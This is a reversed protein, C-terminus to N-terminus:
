RNVSMTPTVWNTWIYIVEAEPNLKQIAEYQLYESTLSENIINNADAIWQADIRKIDAKAIAAEKLNVQRDAEAKANEKAEIAEVISKPLWINEIIITEINSYLGVEKILKEKVAKTIEVRGTDSYVSSKDKGTIVDDITANAYSLILDSLDTSLGKAMEVINESKVSYKITLNINFKLGEKSTTQTDLKVIRERTDVTKITTFVKNYFHLWAPLVNEQVKGLKYVLWVQGSTIVKFWVLAILMVIIIAVSVLVSIASFWKKNTIM